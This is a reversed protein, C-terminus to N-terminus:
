LLHFTQFLLHALFLKLQVLLLSQFLLLQVFLLSQFFLLMFALQPLQVLLEVLLPLLLRHLGDQLFEFLFKM